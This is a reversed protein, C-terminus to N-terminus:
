VAAKVSLKRKMRQLSNDIYKASVNLKKAIASYSYGALYLAFIKREVPTFYNLIFENVASIAERSMVMDEPNVVSCLAAKSAASYDDLSIYGNLPQQKKRLASRVASIIKTTVCLSAYTRFSTGKHLDFSRIAGLLGITGEQVLDETDLGDIDFRSARMCIFRHFGAILLGEAQRDGSRALRVLEECGFAPTSVASFGAM